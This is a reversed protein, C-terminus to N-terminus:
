SSRPWLGQARLKHTPSAVGATTTFLVFTCLALGEGGVRNQAADRPAGRAPDRGRGRRRRRERRAGDADDPAAQLTPLLLPPIRPRTLLHSLSLSLSPAISRKHFAYKHFSPIWTPNSEREARVQRGRPGERRLRQQFADDRAHIFWRSPHAPKQAKGWVRRPVRAIFIAKRSFAEKKNPPFRGGKKKKKHKWFVRGVSERNLTM